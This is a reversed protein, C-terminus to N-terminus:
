KACNHINTFGYVDYLLMHNWKEDEKSVGFMFLCLGMNEMFNALCFELLKMSHIHGSKDNKSVRNDSQDCCGSFNVISRSMRLHNLICLDNAWVSSAM